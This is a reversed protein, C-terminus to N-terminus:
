TVEVEPETQWIRLIVILMLRLYCQFTKYCVLASEFYLPPPPLYIYSILKPTIHLIHMKLRLLRMSDTLTDRDFIM